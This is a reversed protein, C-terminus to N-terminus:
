KLLGRGLKEVVVILDKLKGVLDFLKGWCSNFLLVKDLVGLIFELGLFLKLFFLFIVNIVLFLLLLVLDIFFLGYLDYLFKVSDVDFM